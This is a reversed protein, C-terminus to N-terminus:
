IGIGTIFTHNSLPFGSFVFYSSVGMIIVLFNNSYQYLAIIVALISSIKIISRM